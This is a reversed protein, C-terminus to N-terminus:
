TTAQASTSATIVIVEKLLESPLLHFLEGLRVLQAPTPILIGREILSIDGQHLGIAAAVATQSLCHSNREYKLRTM